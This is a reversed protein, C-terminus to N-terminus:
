LQLIEMVDLSHGDEDNDKVDLAEMVNCLEMMELSVSVEALLELTRMMAQVDETTWFHINARLFLQEEFNKPTISCRRDGVALKTASSFRECMNSTPRLFRCDKYVSPAGMVKKKKLAREALSLAPVAAGEESGQRAQSDRLAKIAQAEVSTLSAKSGLLVKVVGDEFAPNKVIATSRDLRAAADPYDEIVTDFIQRADLLSCDESQLALTIANLDELKTLLTTVERDEVVNLRLVDINNDNIDILFSKIENYRKLMSYTSSWRTTNNTKAVLPTLRRLRAAPLTFRLKTMLQNVKDIVDAHDALMDSMFLIFLHSTCGILPVGARRAFAGNTSCNDGILAVVNDWTKGFLELVFVTFEYHDDASLSEEDNIPAFALLTWTYGIPDSSPFTAFIALYHTSGHSWGDHVLAFQHPLQSAIKREVHACLARM